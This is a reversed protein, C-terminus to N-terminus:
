IREKQKRSKYNRRDFVNKKLYLEYERKGKMWNLVKKREKKTM